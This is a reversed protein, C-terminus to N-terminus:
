HPKDTYRVETDFVLGSFTDTAKLNSFECRYKFFRFPKGQLSPLEDWHKLDNSGYLTLACQGSDNLMMLKRLRRLSKLYLSGDLKMPRSQVVTGYINVDDDRESTELLSYLHGREDQVVCDPYNNASALPNPYVLSPVTIEEEESESESENETIETEEEEDTDEEINALPMYGLFAHTKTSFTKSALNYVWIKDTDTRYMIINGAKYDYVIRCGTLFQLFDAKGKGSLQNSVCIVGNETTGVVYMLGKSSVFFAGDDVMTITDGDICVERSFPPAVSTMAGEDNEKVAWIGQTTFCLITAVKYADQNLATTLGAIGIIKGNGVRVYGSASINLPNDTASQIVYNYLSMDESLTDPTFIDSSIVPLDTEQGTPYSEMYYAGNMSNHEKLETNLLVYGNNDTVVLHTASTDPYYFWFKSGIIEATTIDKEVVYEGQENNITVYAKYNRSADDYANFHSFGEFISRKVGLMILRRNYTEIKEPMLNSFSFYGDTLREQAVLNPLTTESIKETVSANYPSRGLDCLLYFNACSDVLEKIIENDEKKKFFTTFKASVHENYAFGRGLDTIVDDIMSTDKHYLSLNNTHSIADADTTEFLVTDWRYEFDGHANYDAFTDTHLLDSARKIGECALLEDVTYTRNKSDNFQMIEQPITIFVSVDKVLDYYDSYDTTQKVHLSYSNLHMILNDWTEVWRNNNVIPYLLVPNTAYIYSNDYLRVAVRAFFPSYFQKKKDAKNKAGALGALVLNKINDYGEIENAYCSRLINYPMISNQVIKGVIIDVYNADWFGAEFTNEKKNELWFTANPIPISNGLSKYKQGKWLFYHIGDTTNVIVTNGISKIQKITINNGFDKIIYDNATRIEGIGRAQVSDSVQSYQDYIEKDSPLIVVYETDDHQYDRSGSVYEVNLFDDDSVVDNGYKEIDSAMMQFTATTLKKTSVTENYDSIASHRDSASGYVFDDVTIKSSVGVSEIIDYSDSNTLWYYLESLGNARHVKSRDGTIYSYYTIGIKTFQVGTRNLRAVFSSYEFLPVGYLSSDDFTWYFDKEKTVPVVDENYEAQSFKQVFSYEYHGIMGTYAEIKVINDIDPYETLNLTYETQESIHQISFHNYDTVEEGNYMYTINLTIDDGLESLFKIHLKNGNISDLELWYHASNEMPIVALMGVLAKKGTPLNNKLEVSLSDIEVAIATRNVAHPTSQMYRLVVEINGNITGNVVKLGLKNTEPERAVILDTRNGEYTYRLVQRDDTSFLYRKKGAYDHIYELMGGLVIDMQKPYQIPQLEGNNQVMGDCIELQEDNCVLDSPTNCIGKTPTIVHRKTKEAM